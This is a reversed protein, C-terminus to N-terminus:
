DPRALNSALMKCFLHGQELADDLAQHTHPTPSAWDEPFAQKGCMRYPKRLVAMAYTKVDIVSYGFPNKGVFKMLYWYVFPFDFASPYAVFVPRGPLGSIWDLYRVMVDAPAALDKRCAAWADPQTTWWEATRPDIIADPLAELNASFTGLLQGNPSFAASGLSLMSHVGAIPGDTEIDTSVYSEIM